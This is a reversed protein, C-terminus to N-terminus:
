PETGCCLIAPDGIGFSSAPASIPRTSLPAGNKMPPLPWTWTGALPVNYRPILSSLTLSLLPPNVTVTLRQRATLTFRTRRRRASRPRVRSQSRRLRATEAKTGPDARRHVDRGGTGAECCFAPYRSEDHSNARTAPRVLE